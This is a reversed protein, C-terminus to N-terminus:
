QRGRTGFAKEQTHTEERGLQKTVSTIDAFLSTMQDIKRNMTQKPAKDVPDRERM